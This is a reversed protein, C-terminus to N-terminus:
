RMAGVAKYGVGGLDGYASAYNSASLLFYWRGTAEHYVAIDAKGDGDYDGPVATYGPGGLTFSVPLSYNSLSSWYSWLGTTSDYIALDAKQDGDYDAPVYVYGLGPTTKTSLIYSSGSLALYWYSLNNEWEQYVLAPDAKGDADYDAAVPKYGSGGFSSTVLDYNRTSLLGEWLGDAERYVLADARGDGDFDGTIPAFDVGGLVGYAPANGSASLLAIWLGSYHYYVAPDVKGDADYDCPVPLYDPCGLQYSVTAYASGSLRVYWMGTAEQYVAFDMIADGDFDGRANHTSAMSRRWGSDYATSYPGISTWKKSQIWYYYTIGPTASTDMYSMEATEGVNVASSSDATLGRGIRYSIAGLSANWSVNIGQSYTGKTATVSTPPPLLRYGSAVSSLSSTTAINYAKVWFYYPTLPFASTDDYFV